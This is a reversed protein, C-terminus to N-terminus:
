YCMEPKKSLEKIKNEIMLDKNELRKQHDDKFKALKDQMEKLREEGRAIMKKEMELRENLKEAIKAKIAELQKADHSKKYEAIMDRIKEKEAKQEELIKKKLAQMKIEAKAPDDERIKNIAEVEQTFKEKMVFEVIRDRDLERGERPELRKKDDNRRRPEKSSNDDSKGAPTSAPVVTIDEAHTRSIGLAIIGAATMAVLFRSDM